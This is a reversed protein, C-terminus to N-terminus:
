KEECIFKIDEISQDVQESFFGRRYLFQKLKNKEVFLCHQKLDEESLKINSKKRKLKYHHEFNPCKRRLATTIANIWAEAALYEEDLKSLNYLEVGKAQLEQQIYQYGYGQSQRTRVLMETYRLDSLYDKELLKDIVKDISQIDYKKQKLKLKLEDVSHERRSLLHVATHMCKDAVSSQM